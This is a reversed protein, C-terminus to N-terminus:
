CEMPVLSNVVPDYRMKYIKIKDGCFNRMWEQDEPKVRPGLYIATPMPMPKPGTENGLYLRRWEQEYQWQVDKVTAAYMMYSSDTDDIDNIMMRADPKYLVPFMLEVDDAMIGEKKFNYEVCFGQNSEAYHAWMLTSKNDASFCCVSYISRIQNQRNEIIRFVEDDMKKNLMQLISAPFDEANERANKQLSEAVIELFQKNTTVKARPFGFKNRFSNYVKQTMKCQAEESIILNTDVFDNFSTPLSSYLVSHCLAQKHNESFSRYKYLKDPMHDFKIEAAREMSLRTHQMGFMMIEYEQLWKDM